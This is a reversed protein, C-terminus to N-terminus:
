EYEEVNNADIIWQDTYIIKTEEDDYTLEEGNLNKLFCDVAGSGMGYPDQAVTGLVTGNKIPEFVNSQADYGLM